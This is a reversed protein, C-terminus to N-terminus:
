GAVARAQHRLRCLQRRDLLGNLTCEALAEEWLSESTPSQGSVDRARRLATLADTIRRDLEALDDLMTSEGRPRSMAAVMELVAGAGICEGIFRAAEAHATTWRPASADTTRPDASDVAQEDGDTLRGALHAGAMDTAM